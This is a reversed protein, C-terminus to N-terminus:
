DRWAELLSPEREAPEAVTCKLETIHPNSENVDDIVMQVNVQGEMVASNTSHVTITSGNAIPIPSRQGIYSNELNTRLRSNIQAQMDEIHRLQDGTLGNAWSEMSSM